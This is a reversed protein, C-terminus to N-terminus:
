GLFKAIKRALDTRAGVGTQCEWIVMVDWGRERLAALNARDRKRNKELKELWYERRTKPQRNGRACSHQHWFCGHVFIVKRRSPFVMDPKGPLDKRHLGYRYGMGHTLQRVVMEPETDVSPVSRMVDSRRESCETM